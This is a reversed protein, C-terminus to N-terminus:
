LLSVLHSETLDASLVQDPVLKVGNSCQVHGPAAQKVAAVTVHIQARRLIDITIVAEMEESGDAVLVLVKKQTM